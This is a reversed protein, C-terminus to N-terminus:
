YRRSWLLMVGCDSGPIRYEVPASPGSYYEVAALDYTRVWTIDDDPLRDGDLYIQVACGYKCRESGPPQYCAGPRLNVIHPSGDAGYRAAIAPFHDELLVPFETNSERTLVSDTLFRGIGMKRRREFPTLFEPIAAAETKVTELARPLPQLIFVDGVSDGRFLVEIDAPAYGLRRVRVRFRGSPIKDIWARGLWDAKAIRDLQPLWVEANPLPAHTVADVVDAEFVIHQALLPSTFLSMGVAVRVCWYFGALEAIRACRSRVRRWALSGSEVIPQLLWRRNYWRRLNKKRFHERIYREM